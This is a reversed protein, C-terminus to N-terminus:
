ILAPVTNKSLVSHLTSSLRGWNARSSYIARLLQLFCHLSSSSSLYPGRFCGIYHMQWFSSYWSINSITKLHVMILYSCSLFFYDTKLTFFDCAKSNLKIWFNWQRQKHGLYLDPFLLLFAPKPIKGIANCLWSVYVSHHSITSYWARTYLLPPFLM